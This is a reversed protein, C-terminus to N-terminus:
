KARRSVELNGARDVSSFHLTKLQKATLTLPKKYRKAKAKGIQVWTAAVGSGADHAVLKVTVRKGHHRVHAVTKPATTDARGPKLLKGKRAVTGTQSLTVTGSAAPYGHAASMKTGKFTQVTLAAGGLPLAISVPHNADTVIMESEGLTTVDALGARKAQEPTLPAGPKPAASPNAVHVIGKTNYLRYIAGTVPCPDIDGTPDTGKLLFGKIRAEVGPNGTEDAHAIGCIYHLPVGHNEKAGDAAGQTESRLPVTGDGNGITAKGFSVVGNVGSSFSLQAVTPVGSGIMAQYDVRNTQFGDITRHHALARELLAPTAGLAAVFREVGADNLLKRGVTLWSGYADSPYLWFLGEFNRAALQLDGAKVLLDLSGGEPTDTDGELLAFLSKPAGNYPTGVSILRAVQKARTSDDIYSRAVLGGMSHAMLVVKQASSDKLAQKILNGLGEVARDAGQRWDYPYAYTRGPELDRIFNLTSGYADIGLVSDVVGDFGPQTTANANCSGPAGANTLGDPRLLMEAFDNRPLRPWLSGKQSCQIVSGLIGPIFIIPCGTPQTGPPLDNAAGCPTYLFDATAQTGGALHAIACTTFPDAVTGASCQGAAWAGGAEDKPDGTAQLNYTGPAVRASYHGAADTTITQAVATGADDHGTLQVKVGPLADGVRSKVDGAVTSQGAGVVLFTHQVGNLTGWGLMWGSDNIDYADTLHWPSGAPLQADLKSIQHSSDWIVADTGSQGVITGANNIAQPYAAGVAAGPLEPLAEENGAAHRIVAGRTGSSVQGVIDDENNIAHNAALAGPAPNVDTAIVSSGNWYSNPGALHGRDNVATAQAPVNVPFATGPTTVFSDVPGSPTYWAGVATGNPSAGRYGGGEGGPYTHDVTETNTGADWRAPFRAAASGDTPHDIEQYGFVDGADDIAVARTDDGNRPLTTTVGNEWRVASQSTPTFAVGAVQGTGNVSFFYGASTPGLDVINLPAAAAPAVAAAMTTLATGLLVAIQRM